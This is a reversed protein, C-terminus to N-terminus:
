NMSMGGNGTGNGDDYNENAGAYVKALTKFRLKGGDSTILLVPVMDGADISQKLRMFMLHDGGPELTVSGGAPITIGGDKEQMVMSGNQMAVQHLQILGAYRPSRAGVITIPKDTPNTIVGFGATMGSKAAKVWQDNIELDSSKLRVGSSWTNEDDGAECFYARGDVIRSDGSMMCTSGPKPATAANAPAVLGAVVIGAAFGAVAFSRIRM